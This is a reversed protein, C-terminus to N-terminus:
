YACSAAKRRSPTEPAMSADVPGRFPFDTKAGEWEAAALKLKKAVNEPDGPPPGVSYQPKYDHPVNDGVVRDSVWGEAQSTQFLAKLMAKHTLLRKADLEERPTPKRPPEPENEAVLQVPEDDEDDDDFDEHALIRSVAPAPANCSPEPQEPNVTPLPPPLALRDRWDRYTKVAYRAKFWKLVSQFFANLPKSRFKLIENSKSMALPRSGAVIEEKFAGCSYRGDEYSYADFFSEIFQGVRTCNSRLYRASYYLLVHYFSELEDATEVVKAKKSLVAVSMFQWTGTREPQRARPRQNEISKALEWDALLGHWKIMPHDDDPHRTVMPYILINGGSVDRHVIKAIVTADRHALVCDYIISFLQQGSQFKKLPMAVEEVVLRYHMHRRLPREERPGKHKTHSTSFIANTADDDYEARSRKRCKSSAARSAALTRSSSKTPTSPAPLPASWPSFPSSPSQHTALVANTDPFTPAEHKMEWFEPTQTTQNRIDGHCLVTPIHRVKAANLQRLITGEQDVLEYHVRWADKLWVFRKRRCDWAVYGRTGRGAMGSAHFVPKGVLFYYSEGEEEVELRYRPWEEQLSDSFMERVYRLVSHGAPIEQLDRETHDLDDAAALSVGDMIAYDPMGEYLRVASSDCGLGEESLHSMRWLMECLIHPNEYYDVSRTVITGSRDWRLFRFRRGMVLLMFLATRHQYRFVTEAYDILQGRVKKRTIADSDVKEDERDDFPDYKTDHRKFEVAVMQDAWHPRGDIPAREPLFFAADIKQGSEDTQDARYQSAVM